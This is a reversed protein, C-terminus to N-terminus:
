IKEKNWYGSLDAETQPYIIRDVKNKICFDLVNLTGIVNTNIYIYPDKEKTQAPMAGALNIVAYINDGELVKFSERDVINMSVYKAKNNLPKSFERRGVAILEYEN